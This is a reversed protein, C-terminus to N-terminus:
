AAYLFGISTIRHSPEMMSHFATKHAAGACSREGDQTSANQECGSVGLGLGRFGGAPVQGYRHGYQQGTEAKPPGHVARQASFRCSLQDQAAMPFSRSLIRMLVPQRVNQEGLLSLVSLHLHPTPSFSNMAIGGVACTPPRTAEVSGVVCGLSPQLRSLASRDPRARCLRQNTSLYPQYLM